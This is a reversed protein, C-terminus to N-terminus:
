RAWGHGCHPAQCQTWSTSATVTAPIWFSGHCRPCTTWIETAPGADEAIKQGIWRVALDNDVTVIAGKELQERAYTMNRLLRVRQYGEMATDEEILWRRGPFRRM